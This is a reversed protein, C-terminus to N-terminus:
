QIVRAAIEEAVSIAACNIIDLNGAYSPLFDGRGRVRVMVTLRDRELTPPVILEYGPVYRRIVETMAEVAQRLRDLDSVGDPALAFVTTQMDICPMAPNLNLIAKVSGCGAIERLGRETSEIYEDINNRTGPGASSSSISSVVELYPIGPQERMLACAIPIAAQGGCTLMSIEGEQDVCGRLNIAPVCAAGIQSPTMDISRLGLSRLVPAHRLHADAYTADFVLDLQGAIREVADIGATSTPVGRSSALAIGRSDPNRGAFLACRVLDSRLCKVLLDTGINGTGLIAVRM